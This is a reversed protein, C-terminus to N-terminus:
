QVNFSIVITVSYEIPQRDKSAPFFRWTKVTRLAAEDLDPRLSRVVSADKVVGDVGVRVNLLVEGNVKDKLASAPYQPRPTYVSRPPTVGDPGPLPPPPQAVRAARTDWTFTRWPSKEGLRGTADVAWVRWRGPQDGVFDLAYTPANLELVPHVVGGTRDSNWGTGDFYDVMVHYRAAGEVPGWRMVLRRPFTYFASGDPPSLLAPAELPTSPASRPTSACGVTLVLGVIALTLRLM